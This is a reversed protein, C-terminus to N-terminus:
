DDRRNGVCGGCGCGGFTVAGSAPSAVRDRASASYAALDSPTPDPVTLCGNAPGLRRFGEMDGPGWGRASWDTSMIQGPVSSHGLGYVHGLEHVVLGIFGLEDSTATPDLLVGGTVFVPESGPAEAWRAGGFGAFGPYDWTTDFAIIVPAWRDGYREPQYPARNPNAGDLTEDTEGVLRWPVGTAMEMYRLSRDVGSRAFSPAGDFNVVVDIPECGNWRVPKGNPQTAMFSYSGVPAPGTPLPPPAIPAGNAARDFRGTRVKFEASDSFGLMVRGRTRGEALLGTWYALGAADPDRELVNRYVLRVFETDDLAGYRAGFEASRAFEASIASLPTGSAHTSRWFALGGPDPDRLFYAHYLRDISLADPGNPPTVAAAPSAGAVTLAAATLLVSLFAAVVQRFPRAPAPLEHHHHHCETM